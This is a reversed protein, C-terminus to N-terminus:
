LNRKCVTFFLQATVYRGELGNETNIFSLTRYSSMYFSNVSVAFCEASGTKKSNFKIKLLLATLKIILQARRRNRWFIKNLLKLCFSRSFALRKIGLMRM